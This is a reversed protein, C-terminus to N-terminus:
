QHETVYVNATTAAIVHLVAGPHVRFHEPWNPPIMLSSSTAAADLKIFVKADAVVRVERTFPQLTVSADTTTAAVLTTKGIIM